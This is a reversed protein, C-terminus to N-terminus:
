FGNEEFLQSLSTDNTLSVLASKFEALGYIPYNYFGRPSPHCMDMAEKFIFPGYKQDIMYLIKAAALISSPTNLNSNSIANLFRTSGETQSYNYPQPWANDGLQSYVEPLIRISAAYYAWGEDFENNDTLFMIHGLEAIFGYVWHIGTINPPQM